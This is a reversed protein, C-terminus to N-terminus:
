LRGLAIEGEKFKNNGLKTKIVTQESENNTKRDLLQKNQYWYRSKRQRGEKAVLVRGGQLKEWSNLDM